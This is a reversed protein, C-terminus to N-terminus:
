TFRFRRRIFPTQMRKTKRPTHVVHRIFTTTPRICTTASYVYTYKARHNKLWSRTNLSALAVSYVCIQSFVRLHSQICKSKASYATRRVPTLKNPTKLFCCEYYNVGFDSKTFSRRNSRMIMANTHPIRLNPRMSMDNERPIRLNPRMIMANKAPIRLNPRM